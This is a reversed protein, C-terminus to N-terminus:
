WFYFGARWGLISLGVVECCRRGAAGYCVHLPLLHEERPHCFRAHPAKEWERLRTAREDESIADSLCTDILWGAFANNMTVNDAIPPKFFVKLNHFSFGSGIILVDDQALDSLAAGIRIHEGADLSSQLSVQICPIDADPYMLLLPVYLGHDFGREDDLEAAVGGTQLMGAVRKALEPAGPAPYQLEYSEKSFGYYDYIMPPRTGSTVTAVREEWHASVVVIASPRGLKKAALKLQEVMEVHGADGLLPLPGGGHSLFFIRSRDPTPKM